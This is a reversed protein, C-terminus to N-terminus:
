YSSARRVSALVMEGAMYLVSTSNIFALEVGSQQGGEVDELLPSLLFRAFLLLALCCDLAREVVCFSFRSFFGGASRLSNFVFGGFLSPNFTFIGIGAAIGVATANFSTTVGILGFSVLQIAEQTIAGGGM